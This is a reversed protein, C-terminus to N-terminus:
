IDQVHKLGLRVDELTVALEEELIMVILGDAIGPVFGPQIM